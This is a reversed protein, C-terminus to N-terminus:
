AKAKKSATAKTPEPAVDQKPRGTKIPPVAKLASMFANDALSVLQMIGARLLESKKVGHGLVQARQKLLALAEYENKPITFSDRVLKAKKPKLEVEAAKKAPSTVAVPASVAKPAKAQPATAAKAKAPAAAKVKAPAAPAAAKVSRTVAPKAPATKKAAPKTAAAPTAPQAPTNAPEAQASAPTPTTNM